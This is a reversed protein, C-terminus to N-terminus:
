FKVVESNERVSKQGQVSCVGGVPGLFFQEGRTSLALSAQVPELQVM